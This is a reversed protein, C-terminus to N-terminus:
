PEGRPAQFVLLEEQEDGPFVSLEGFLRWGEPLGERHRVQIEEEPGSSCNGRAREDSFFLWCSSLARRKIM